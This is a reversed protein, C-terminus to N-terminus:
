KGVDGGKLEAAAKAKARFRAAGLWADLNFFRPRAGGRDLGIGVSFPGKAVIFAGQRDDGFRGYSGRVAVDGGTALVESLLFLKPSLHVRADATLRPMTVLGVVLSPLSDGILVGLLPRADDAELHLLGDLRPTQAGDLKLTAEDLVADGRWRRTEAASGEVRVDRMALTSGSLRATSTKPDFGTLMARLAFDGELVTEHIAVTGDAIDVELMGAASAASSSLAVSGFARATGSGLRIADPGPILFQLARADALVADDIVLRADTTRLSPEFVDRGKGILAIQRASIDSQVRDGIRGRVKTLSVHSLGLDLKKSDLDWRTIDADIDSDGQLALRRGRIGVAKAVGRAHGRAVHRVIALKGDLDFSGGQAFRLDVSAPLRAEFSDNTIPGSALALDLDLRALPDDFSLAPSKADLTVRAISAHAEGFQVGLDSALVSGSGAAKEDAHSLEVHAGTRARGALIRLRTDKPLFANLRTLDDIEASPLDVVSRADRLPTKALDLDRATTTVSLRDAHALKTGHAVVSIDRLELNTHLRDGQDDAAVEAVFGLTTHGSFKSKAITARPSDLEIRTGRELVGSQLDIRVLRATIETSAYFPLHFPLTAPNALHGALETHVTIYRFIDNGEITRPDFHSITTEAMGAVGHALLTADGLTVRAGPALEVRCPGVRVDRIPKLYFGGTVRASGEFRGDDVWVERVDEAVVDDLSVTWLAYHEDFWRELSPPGAPRMSYAPYGEIPPLYAVDEPGQPPIALKQRARFDIGHGRARTVEFRRHVLGLFSLDFDVEDLRLRWEVNSDSARISLGEAHVRGPLWTWGRRYHIDITVPDQNIVSGFLSTSLFVNLAVVYLAYATVIAM